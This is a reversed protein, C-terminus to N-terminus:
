YARLGAATKEMADAIGLIVQRADRCETQCYADWSRPTPGAENPCVLVRAGKHIRQFCHDCLGMEKCEVWEGELDKQWPKEPSAPSPDPSSTSM